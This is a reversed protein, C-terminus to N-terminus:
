CGRPVLGLKRPLHLSVCVAMCGDFVGCAVLFEDVHIEHLETVKGTHKFCPPSCLAVYTGAFGLYIKM